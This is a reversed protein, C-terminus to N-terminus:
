KYYEEVIIIGDGGNGGAKGYGGSEAPAGSGGSGVTYAYTSSPSSIIGEVFGGAGGGGGGYESSGGSASGGGAGGGGSNAIGNGGAASETGRGAGGFFSSGGNGGACGVIPQGASGGGGALALGIMDSGLTVSGGAGGSSTLGRTGGSGGGASATAGFTSATGASGNNTGSGANGSSGGGGGGVMRVKIWLAGAPKTYTGTGTLFKQITPPKALVTQMNTINTESAVVRQSFAVLDVRNPNAQYRSVPNGTALALDAVVIDMQGSLLDLAADRSDAPNNVLLGTSVIFVAADALYTTNFQISSGTEHYNGDATPSAAANGSNRFQQVGDLYVTVAGVQETPFLNLPYAGTLVESTGATLTATMVFQTADVFYKGEKQSDLVGLIFETDEATWGLFNVQSNSSVTYQAYPILPGRVSSVLMLGKQNVYIQAAALDSAGPNTFGPMAATPTTLSQLSFGSDGVTCQQAFVLKQPVNGLSKQTKVDQKRVSIASKSLM